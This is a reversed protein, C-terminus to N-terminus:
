KKIELEEQIKIAKKLLKLSKSKSFYFGEEKRNKDQIEIGVADITIKYCSDQVIEENTNKYTKM